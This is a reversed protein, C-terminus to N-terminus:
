FGMILFHVVNSKNEMFKWSKEHSEPVKATKWSKGPGTTV